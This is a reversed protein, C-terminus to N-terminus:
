ELELLTVGDELHIPTVEDELTLTTAPNFVNFAGRLRDIQSVVMSLFLKAM